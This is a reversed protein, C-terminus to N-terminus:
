PSTRSYKPAPFRSDRVASNDRASCSAQIGVLGLRPILLADPIMTLYIRQRLGIGGIYANLAQKEYQCIDKFFHFDRELESATAIRM